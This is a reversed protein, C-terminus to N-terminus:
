REALNGPRTAGFDRLEDVEAAVREIKRWLEREHKSRAGQLVPPNNPALAPVLLQWTELEFVAALKDLQDVTCASEMRRIRDLTGNSPGGAKVIETFGSLAPRAAMLAVLNDALVKRTKLDM